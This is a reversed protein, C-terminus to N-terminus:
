YYFIQAAYSLYSCNCCDIEETQEISTRRILTCKCMPCVGLKHINRKTETPIIDWEAITFLPMGERIGTIEEVIRDAREHLKKSKEKNFEYLGHYSIETSLQVIRKIEKAGKIFDSIKIDIEKMEGM